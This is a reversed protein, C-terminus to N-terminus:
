SRDQGSTLKNFVIVAFWIFTPLFVTWWSGAFRDLMKLTFLVVQMGGIVIDLYM